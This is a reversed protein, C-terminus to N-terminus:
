ARQTLRTHARSRRSVWLCHWACYLQVLWLVLSIALAVVGPPYGSFGNMKGSGLALAMCMVAWVPLIGWILLALARTLREPRRVRRLGRGLTIVVVAGVTGILLQLIDMARAVPVFWWPLSALDLGEGTPYVQWIVAWMLATAPVALFLVMALRRGACTVLERQYGPAIEDLSGFERVATLEAEARGLGDGELADATDVLSDRAEAVLDRKPRYPGKLADGLGAVYDDIVSTSAMIRKPGEIRGGPAADHAVM